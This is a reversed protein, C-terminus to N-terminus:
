RWKKGQPYYDIWRGSNTLPSPGIVMKGNPYIHLTDSPARVVVGLKNALNQAFDGKESGTKCSLLRIRGGSYGKDHKLFKALRRQDLKIEIDKDGNLNKRFVSVFKENGHIAVDTYGPEKKVKEAVKALDAGRGNGVLTSDLTTYNSQKSGLTQGFGGHFGAGM